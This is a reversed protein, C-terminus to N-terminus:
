LGEFEVSIWFKRGHKICKFAVIESAQDFKYDLCVAGISKALRDGIDMLHKGDYSVGNYSVVAM